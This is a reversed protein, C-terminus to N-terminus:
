EFSSFEIHHNWFLSRSNSSRESYVGFETRPQKNPENIESKSVLYHVLQTKFLFFPIRYLFLKLFLSQNLFVIFLLNFM